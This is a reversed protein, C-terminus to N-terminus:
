SSNSGVFSSGSHNFAGLFSGSSLQSLSNTGHAGMHKWFSIDIMHMLSLLPWLKTTTTTTVVFSFERLASNEAKSRREVESKGQLVGLM